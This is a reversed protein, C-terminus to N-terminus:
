VSKVAQAVQYPMWQVYATDTPIVQGEQVVTVSGRNFMNGVHDKVSLNVNSESNVHVVTADCAQDSYTILENDCTNPYYYMKRGVTPIIITM